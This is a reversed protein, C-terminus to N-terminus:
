NAPAMGSMGSMGEPVVTVPPTDVSAEPAAQTEAPAEVAVGPAEASPMGGNLYWIIAAVAVVVAGVILYLGSNSKQQAM